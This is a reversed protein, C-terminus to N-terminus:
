MVPDAYGLKILLIRGGIIASIGLVTGLLVSPPIQDLVERLSALRRIEDPDANYLDNGCTLIAPNKKLIVKAEEEGLVSELAVKSDRLLAPNAYIPCLVSGRVQKAATNAKDEAGYVEVLAEYLDEVDKPDYTGKEWSLAAEVDDPLARLAVSVAPRSRPRLLAGSAAQFSSASPLVLLLTAIM